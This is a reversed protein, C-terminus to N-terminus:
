GMQRAQGECTRISKPRCRATEFGANRAIARLTSARALSSPSVFYPVLEPVVGAPDPAVAEGGAGAAWAVAAGAAGAASPAAAAVAGAEAAAPASARVLACTSDTAFARHSYRDAFSAEKWLRSKQVASESTAHTGAVNPMGPLTRALCTMVM